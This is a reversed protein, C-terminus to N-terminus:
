QLRYILRGEFLLESPELKLQGGPPTAREFVFRRGDCEIWANIPEGQFRGLIEESRVIKADEPLAYGQMEEPTPTDQALEWNANDPPQPDNRTASRLWLRFAWMPLLVRHVRKDDTIVCAVPFIDNCSPCCAEAALFIKGHMLSAIGDMHEAGVMTRCQPCHKGFRRVSNGNPFTIPLFRIIKDPRAM